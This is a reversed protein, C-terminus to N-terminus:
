ACFFTKNSEVFHYSSDFRLPKRLSGLPKGIKIKLAFHLNTQKKKGQLSVAELEKQLAKFFWCM